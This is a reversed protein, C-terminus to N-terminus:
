QKFFKQIEQFDKQSFYPLNCIQELTANKIEALSAFKISLIQKKKVGINPIKSLVSQLTLQDRQKRHNANVFRHTEDRVAILFLM